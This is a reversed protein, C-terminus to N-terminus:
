RAAKDWDLQDRSCQALWQISEALHQRAWILLDSPVESPAPAPLLPGQPTLWELTTAETPAKAETPSDVTNQLSMDGFNHLVQQMQSHEWRM